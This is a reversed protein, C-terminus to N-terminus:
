VEKEETETLQKSKILTILTQNNPQANRLEFHRIEGAEFEERTYKKMKDLYSWMYNLEEVCDLALKNTYEYSSEIEEIELDILDRKLTNDEEIKDQKLLKVKIIDKKRKIEAKKLDNLKTQFNLLLARYAREPTKSESIISDIQWKSNGFPIDLSRQYVEKLLPMFETSKEIENM